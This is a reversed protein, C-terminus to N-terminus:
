GREVLNGIGKGKKSTIIPSKGMEGLTSLRSNSFKFLLIRREDDGM